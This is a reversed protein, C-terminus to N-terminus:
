WAIHMYQIKSLIIQFFLQSKIQFIKLFWFFFIEDFIALFKKMPFNKKTMLFSIRCTKKTMKFMIFCIKQYCFNKFKKENEAEQCLDFIAVICTWIWSTIFKYRLDLFGVCPPCGGGKSNTMIIITWKKWFWEYLKLIIGNFDSMQDARSQWLIKIKGNEFRSKHSTFKEFHIFIQLDWRSM